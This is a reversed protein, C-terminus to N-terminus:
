FEQIRNNSNARLTKTTELMEDAEKDSLSGALQMLNEKWAQKSEIRKIYLDIGERILTSQKRGTIRAIHQLSAKQDDRIFVQTKQM